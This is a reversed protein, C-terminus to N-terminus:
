PVVVDLALDKRRPPKKQFNALYFRYIGNIPLRLRCLLVIAETLLDPDEIYNLLKRFRVALEFEQAYLCKRIFTRIRAALIDFEEQDRNLDYAKNCVAYTSELIQNGPRAVEGSLSHPVIRKHTLIEDQYFYRYRVGSRVWFDFDEYSLSEDYGGLEDLVSRRIMMTPTCIFYKRLIEKYVDGSPVPVKAKGKSDLPYHEHLPEGHTDIYRANSFLVGYSDSLREFAVVQREIRQPLLLDDGSLDIVYKGRALYLGQNFAKCLGRNEPNAIFKVRPHERVIRKIIAVTQDTSANDIIILEINRYSQTLVSRLAEEM